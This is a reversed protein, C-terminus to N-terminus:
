RGTESPDQAPLYSGVLRAGPQEAVGGPHVYHELCRRAQTGPSGGVGGSLSADGDAREGAIVGSGHGQVAEDEAVAGGGLGLDALGGDDEAVQQVRNSL